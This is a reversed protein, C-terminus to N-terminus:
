LDEKMKELLDITEKYKEMSPFVLINNECETNDGVSIAEIYDFMSSQRAQLASGNNGNMKKDQQLIEDKNCSFTIIGSLIMITVIKKM